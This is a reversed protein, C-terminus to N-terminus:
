GHQSVNLILGCATMTTVLSSGGYSMLPLPAGTTPLMALAVGINIMAQTVIMGSLGWALFRGFTDPARLGARIGRWLFIAFLVLVGAAGALGLEESIISFIFDSEALPLFNLKQVSEGLGVGFLGGSGVAILSQLIQFGSGEPDQEPSLFALFRAKRYPVSLVLFAVTPVAVAFALTVYKWALGALFLMLGAAVAILGATGFDPQQLVLVVFLLTMVLCPVLANARNIGDSKKDVQYALFLVIAIKAIESPQISVGFVFVWRHTDNLMPSRLAAILLGLTLAIAGYVLWPSRLWRSPLRMAVAMGILGIVAAVAQKAFLGSGDAEAVGVASTSYVMVLGWGFLLVVTAFLVKDSALKKAM